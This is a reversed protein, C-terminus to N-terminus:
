VRTHRHLSSALIVFNCKPRQKRNPKTRCARGKSRKDKVKKPEAQQELSTECTISNQIGHECDEGERLEEDKCEQNGEAEGEKVTKKLRFEVDEEDSDSDDEKAQKIVDEGKGEDWLQTLSQTFSGHLQMPKEIDRIDDKRIGESKKHGVSSYYIRLIPFSIKKQWSFHPKYLGASYFHPMSTQTSLSSAEPSSLLASQSRPIREDGRNDDQSGLSTCPKWLTFSDQEQLPASSQLQAAEDNIVTLTEGKPKKEKEIENKNRTGGDAQLEISEKCYLQNVAEQYDLEKESPTDDKHSPSPALIDLQPFPLPTTHKHKKRKKSPSVNSDLYQERSLLIFFTILPFCYRCSILSPLSAQSSCSPYRQSCYNWVDLREQSNGFIRGKPARGRRGVGVSVWVPPKEM